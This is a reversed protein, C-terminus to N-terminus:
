SPRRVRVIGWYLVDDGKDAIQWARATVATMEDSTPDEWMRNEDGEDAIEFIALAIEISTEHTSAFQRINTPAYTM